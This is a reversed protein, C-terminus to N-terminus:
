RDIRGLRISFVTIISITTIYIDISTSCISFSFASIDVDLSAISAITWICISPIYSNTATIGIIGLVAISTIYVNITTTCFIANAVAITAINVNLSAISSFSAFSTTDMNM